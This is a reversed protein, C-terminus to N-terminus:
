KGCDDITFTKNIYADLAITHLEEADILRQQPKDIDIRSLTDKHPNINWGILMINPSKDQTPKEEVQLSQRTYQNPGIKTYVKLDNSSDDFSVADVDPLSITQQAHLSTAHYCCLIVLALIKKM